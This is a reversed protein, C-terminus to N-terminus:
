CSSAWNDSVSLDAHLIHMSDPILTAFRGDVIEVFVTEGCASCQSKIKVDQNFTFTSGLADIACMSFFSCGNALTVRHPTPLASVPYVFQVCAGDADMVVVRKAILRDLLAGPNSIGQLVLNRPNFPQGTNIIGDMIADRFRNEAPTLRSRISNLFLREAPYDKFKLASM